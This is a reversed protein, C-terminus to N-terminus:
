DCSDSMGEHVWQHIFKKDIAHHPINRQVRIFFIVPVEKNLVATYSDLKRSCFELRLM